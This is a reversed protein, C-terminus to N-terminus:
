LSKLLTGVEAQAPFKDGRKALEELAVRAKPKDGQKIYLQALRLALMGDTPALAVARLQTEVAKPLQSEAELASALTDLLQARDPMVQTAKEALPLAGPKGQKVLLWAVNNLALANNPQVKLVERYKAEALPLDNDSLARDGLYYAFAADQPAQRTWERAFTDAEAKKGAGLLATHVKIAQAAAKGRGLAARYATLAAAWNEQSAEVDGELLYGAPDSAHRQQMDRAIGLADQPRKQNMAILALGRRAPVYDPQLALARKLASAAEDPENNAMLADALRLEPTANRPQLSALKKFTSIARLHDGASLQAQGLAAQIDLDNPLAAAAEEAAPMASKPDASGLLREILLLHPRPEAPNLKAADRMLATVTAAPAGTRASLEALALAAQWSRPQRKRYDEFRKRAVDPKGDALEIAALSAVSAFFDPDKALAAEFSQRAGATDNALLQVRGRLNLPMAQDPLKRALGDIAKLAGATDNQRLRATVLALDARSDGDGGAIAELEAAAAGTNGRAMQALAAATRVTTDGPAAKIARQFAADSKQTDGLQLYAEGAIALSAGDAGESDVVPKLVEIAKDPQSSRLLAQALLQRALVQRPANKLARALLSEAQLYQKMRYEAAGALLLVRVNEPMVKLLRETIERSAKFDKDIFALRAEFYLTESNDPASKKLSAFQTRVEPMQGQELLLGLLAAQAPVSTPHSVMVKRYADIAGPADRKLQRLVEGKLLGANEDAADRQLVGDLLALGGDVDGGVIKLRSQVILAPAFDPVAALASAVAKEARDRDNQIAYCTALTTQLDSAAAPTKLALTGYQTIVKAEQGLQVMARALDPVVQEDPVQLEQAKLLEVQAAVPDGSALLQQGLLLRGEASTANKQLASKLQIIAGRLEKKAILSKASALLDAESPGRNCGILTLSLVVVTSVLLWRWTFLTQTLPM